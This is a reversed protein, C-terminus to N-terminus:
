VDFIKMINLGHNYNKLLIGSKIFMMLNFIADNTVQFLYLMFYYINFKTCYGDSLYIIAQKCNVYKILYKCFPM